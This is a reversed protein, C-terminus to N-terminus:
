APLIARSLPKALWWCLTTPVTALAALIAFSRLAQGASRVNPLIVASSEDPIIFAGLVLVGIIAVAVALWAVWLANTGAYVAALAFIIGALASPPFSALLMAVALVWGAVSAVTRTASPDFFFLFFQLLAGSPGGVIVLVVAAFALPGVVSFIMIIGVARALCYLAVVLSV